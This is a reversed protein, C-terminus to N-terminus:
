SRRTRRWCPAWTRRPRRRPPEPATQATPPTTTPMKAARDSDDKRWADDDCAGVLAHGDLQARVEQVVEHRQVAREVLRVRGAGDDLAHAAVHPRDVAEPDGERGPEPAVEDREHRQGDHRDPHVPLPRGHRNHAQREDHQGGEQDLGVHAGAGAGRALHRGAHRQAEVLDEVAQAGDLEVRQLGVLRVAVAAEHALLHARLHPARRAAGHHGREHVDHRARAEERHEDVAAGLDDVALLGHALEHGEEGGHRQGELGHPAEGGQRARQAAGRGGDLAEVVEKV